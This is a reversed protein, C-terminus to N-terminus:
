CGLADVDPIEAGRGRRRGDATEITIECGHQRRHGHRESYLARGRSSGPYEVGVRGPTSEDMELAHEAADTVCYASDLKLMFRMM